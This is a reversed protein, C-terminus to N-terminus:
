VLLALAMGEVEASSRRKLSSSVPTDKASSRSAPKGKSEKSSSAKSHVDGNSGSKSAPAATNAACAFKIGLPHGKTRDRQEM